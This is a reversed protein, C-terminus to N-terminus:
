EANPTPTPTSGNQSEDIPLVEIVAMRSEAPGSLAASVRKGIQPPPMTINVTIPPSPPPEPAPPHAMDARLQGLAAIFAAKIQEPLAAIEARLAALEGATRDDPAADSRMSLALSEEPTPRTLDDEPEGAVPEDSPQKGLTIREDDVGVLRACVDWPLGTATGWAGVAEAEMKSQTLRATPSSLVKQKEAAVDERGNIAMATDPSLLGATVDERNERREEPTVPGTSVHLTVTCRYQTLFDSFESSMAGATAIASEIVAAILHELPGRGKSVDAEFDARAQQISVGSRQLNEAGLVHAQHCQRMITAYAYSAAKIAFEPDTPDFRLIEPTTITRAATDTGPSVEFGVLETLTSAGLTRPWPHFYHTTGDIVKPELPSPVNPQTTLWIGYPEANITAREPFGAVEGLRTLISQFMNLQRQQRRVPDTILLEAAMETVPLRTVGPFALPAATPDIGDGLVRVFLSDGEVVWVQARPLSRTVNGEADRQDEQYLVIGFAQRTDPDVWVGASAPDDDYLQVRALADPFALGTPLRFTSVGDTVVEDLLGKPVGTRLVGRTSWRSRRCAVRAKQWLKVADWWQRVFDLMEAAVRVQEDSPQKVGDDDEAGAPELAEFAIDGETKALADVFRECVEGAADAPTFQPEVSALVATRVTESGRPGVWNRGDRWHDQNEILDRNEAYAEATLNEAVLDAVAQQAARLTWEDFRM